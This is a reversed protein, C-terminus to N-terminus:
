GCGVLYHIGAAFFFFSVSTLFLAGLSLTVILVNGYLKDIDM